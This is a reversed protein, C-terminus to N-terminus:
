LGCAKIFRARDFKPNTEALRDAWRGVARTLAIQVCEKARARDDPTEFNYLTAINEAMGPGDERMDKLIGAIVAFHRHQLTAPHKAGLADKRAAADPKLAM